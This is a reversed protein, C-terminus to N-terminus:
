VLDGLALLEPNNSPVVGAFMKSGCFTCNAHGPTLSHNCFDCKASKAYSNCQEVEAFLELRAVKDANPKYPVLELTNKNEGDCEDAVLISPTLEVRPQLMPVNENPTLEVRPQLNVAPADSTQLKPSLFM